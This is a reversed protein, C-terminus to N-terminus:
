HGLNFSVRSQYSDGLCSGGGVDEKTGIMADDDDKDDEYPHEPKGDIL